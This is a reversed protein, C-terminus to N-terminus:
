GGQAEERSQSIKRLIGEFFLLTGVGLLPAAIKIDISLFHVGWIILCLSLIIRLWGQKWLALGMVTAILLMGGLSSLADMIETM